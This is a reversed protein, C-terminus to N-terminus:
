ISCSPVDAYGYSFESRSIPSIWAMFFRAWSRSVTHRYDAQCSCYFNFSLISLFPALCKYPGVNPHFESRHVPWIWAMCFRLLSRSVAHHYDAQCSHYFNFSLRVLFSRSMQIAQCKHSIRLSLRALNLGYKLSSWFLVIQYQAMFLCSHFSLYPQSM